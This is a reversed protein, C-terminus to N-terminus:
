LIAPVVRLSTRGSHSSSTSRAWRQRPRPRRSTPWTATSVSRRRPRASAARGRDAHLAGHGRAAPARRHYTDLDSRGPVREFLTCALKDSRGYVEPVPVNTTGLAEIIKTEKALSWPNRPQRERELRLFGELLPATRPPHRRRGVSRAPGRTSRTPHDRRRGTKAIWDTIGDPLDHKFEM